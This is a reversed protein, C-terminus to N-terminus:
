MSRQKTVWTMAVPDKDTKSASAMFGRGILMKRRRAGGGEKEERKRARVGGGEM